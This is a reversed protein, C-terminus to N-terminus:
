FTIAVGGRVARASQVLYVTRHDQGMVPVYGEALLNHLDLLAEMHAPLLGMRPIPQRLVLNLFPDTQGPSANFMDVPTLAHGNTWKYSATWRTKCGPVTGDVRASLAHRMATHMLDRSDELSAVGEPLELVGGFSYDFTADLGSAFKREYVARVGNARYDAGQYTFTGSSPDSLVEGGDVFATGVGVLATDRIRDHFAALMLNNKGMRRAVSVEHHSSRQLAPAFDNVSIRPAAEIPEIPLAERERALRSSPESSAYRYAVVTNPSVHAEASGFPLMASTRKIFQLTQLESGFKLEIVDALNMSDAVRVSFTNVAAARLLPDPPALRRATMSIEPTSGNALEQSYLVRLIAAPSADGYGVNGDFALSGSSLISREFSFQTSADANGGYGDSDSGAVFSVGAKMVPDHHEVPGRPDLVRLIPRRAVSRLTWQWDDDQSAGSRPVVDLSEFITNLTLNVVSAVGSRLDVRERIAPLFSPASVRLNYIGPRLGSASYYGNGDTFVTLTRAASAFVEVVAGMQPTGEATRVIGSLSSTRGAAWGPLGLVLVVTFCSLKRLM